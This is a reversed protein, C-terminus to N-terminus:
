RWSMGWMGKTAQGCQEQGGARPGGGREPCTDEAGSFLVKALDGGGRDALAAPFTVIWNEELARTSNVCSVGIGNGVGLHMTSAVRIVVSNDFVVV